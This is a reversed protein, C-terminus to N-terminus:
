STYPPTTTYRAHAKTAVRVAQSDPTQKEWQNVMAFKNHVLLFYAECDDCQFVSGPYAENRQPLSRHACDPNPAKFIYGM